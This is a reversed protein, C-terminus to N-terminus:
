KKMVNEVKTLAVTLSLGVVKQHHLLHQVMTNGERVLTDMNAFM